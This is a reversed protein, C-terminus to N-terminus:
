HTTLSGLEGTINPFPSFVFQTGDSSGGWLVGALKVNSGSTVSFVDSGSDGPGVKANVVTQCIQTVNSGDVNVTVCTAIVKGRSWGTTRGVKNVTSGVTFSSSTANSTISWHGSITLNTSSTSSTQAISGLTRTTGNVYKAFSADSRRCRRGSPCGNLTSKYAPDVTETAIQTPKSIQTPQWYPTSENGGQTNTCHSATVFGSVGSRTANFGLSCLFGPFNIQVGAVVPRVSGRLTAVQRIPKVLDVTAAAAPIGLRDLVARVRSAAAASQVGIHVRNGAEDADSFVAGPIALAEPTAQATWRELDAWAFRGPLVRMGAAARHQQQFWPALAVAAAARSGPDTLYVTPAGQADLFFGGFGPVTRALAVPDDASGQQLPATALDPAPTPATPQTSDDSCGTLGFIATATIALAITGPRLM